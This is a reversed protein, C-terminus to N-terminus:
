LDDEDMEDEFELWAMLRDDERDRRLQEQKRDFERREKKSMGNVLKKYEADSVRIDRDKKGFFM